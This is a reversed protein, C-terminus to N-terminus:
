SPRVRSRPAKSSIRTFCTRATEISQTRVAHAPGCILSCAGRGCGEDVLTESAIREFGGSHMLQAESMRRRSASQPECLPEQMAVQEPPSAMFVASQWLLQAFM